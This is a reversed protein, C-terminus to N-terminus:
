QAAMDQEAQTVAAALQAILACAREDAIHLLGDGVYWEISCTQPLATHKAAGFLWVKHEQAFRDRIAMLRERSISFHLHLMNSQPAAPNVRLQPFARLVGYLWETRAFYAPMAAVRADFHMAAAVVYPSRRYVNGGMRQMWVRARAVFGADGLLMAGGLGGIGKYFSLYVSDFGAAIDAASQGFGAAAEWLRAGDLHLHIDQAQCYHKIEALQERSPLQGGIERMPLEYLAAGLNDPQAQLDALTWPRQADGIAIAQFHGLLHHNSREHVLVHASPHMAVLESGRADCALRLAISQALTGTICFVGAEFGLLDALKKEFGEILAGEGYTDHRVDHQACWQAMASFEEAASQPVHGSFFQVCQERLQAPTM